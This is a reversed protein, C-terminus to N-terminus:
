GPWSDPVEEKERVLVLIASQPVILYEKGEFEIKVAAKRMFIAFDGPKAQMPM